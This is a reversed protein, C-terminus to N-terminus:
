LLMHALLMSAAPLVAMLFDDDISKFKLKESLWSVTSGAIGMSFPVDAPSYHYLLILTFIVFSVPWIVNAMQRHGHHRLEGALPDMFALGVFAALAIPFPFFLVVICIGMFAWSFSSLRSYEYSRLGAIKIRLQLRFAEFALIVIMLLILAEHKPLGPAIYDPIFYYIPALATLMHVIRRIFREWDVYLSKAMPSLVKDTLGNGPICGTGQARVPHFSVDTLSIRKQIKQQPRDSIEFLNFGLPM